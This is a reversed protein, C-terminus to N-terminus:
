IKLIDEIKLGITQKNGVPWAIRGAHVIGDSFDLGPQFGPLGNKANTKAMLQQGPSKAQRGVFHFIAVPAQIMGYAVTECASVFYGTLVVAKGHRFCFQHLVRVKQEAV